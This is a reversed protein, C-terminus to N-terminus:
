SLTQLSPRNIVIMIRPEIDGSIDYLKIIVKNYLTQIKHALNQYRQISNSQLLHRPCDAETYLRAMIGDNFWGMMGDNSEYGM